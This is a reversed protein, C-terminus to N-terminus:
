RVTIQYNARRYGGTPFIIEVEFHDKGIFSPKSTYFLATTPLQRGNCKSRPNSAPYTAAKTAHEALAEGHEPRKSVRIEPYGNSSCDSQISSYNNINTKRGSVVTAEHHQPKRVPKTGTQAAASGVQLLCLGVALKLAGHFM